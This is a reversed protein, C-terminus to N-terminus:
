DFRQQELIFSELHEDASGDLRVFQLGVRVERDDLPEVHITRCRGKIVELPRTRFPLPLKIDIEVPNAQWDDVGNPFLTSATEGDCEFQLGGRSIDHAAAHVTKGSAIGIEVSVSTDIRLEKRRQDTM